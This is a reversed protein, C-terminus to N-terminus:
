YHEELWLRLFSIQSTENETFGYQKIIRDREQLPLNLYNDRLVGYMFAREDSAANTKIQKYIPSQFWGWLLVAILPFIIILLEIINKIEKTM